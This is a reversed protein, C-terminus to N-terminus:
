SVPVEWSATWLVKTLTTGPPKELGKEAIFARAVGHSEPGFYGDVRLDWGRRAMQAQWLRVESRPLGHVQIRFPQKPPAPAKLVTGVPLLGARAPVNTTTQALVTPNPKAAPPKEAAAAGTNSGTVPRDASDIPPPTPAPSPAERLGLRVSCEPWPQWGRQAQLRLAAQDQVAATAASPLGEYGLGQWTRLDFQYAGYYGNGTNTTYDGSSECARLRAFDDSTAAAASGNVSSLMFATSFSGVALAPKAKSPRRHRPRYGRASM